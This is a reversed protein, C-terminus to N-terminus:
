ERRRLEIAREKAGSDAINEYTNDLFYEHDQYLQIFGITLLVTFVVGLWALAQYKGKASLEEETPPRTAAMARYLDTGIKLGIMSMVASVVQLLINMVLAPAGAELDANGTLAAGIGIVMGFTIIILMFVLGILVLKGLLAWWRGMVLERSRLLAELGRKGEAAYVYQSFYILLSVIIGPIIFLMFGGMVVCWSLLFVWLLGLYNKAAWSWATALPLRVDGEDLVALRLGVALLLLYVVMLIIEVVAIGLSDNFQTLSPNASILYLVVESVVLPLILLAVVTPYKKAFVWGASFLQDVTPLEVQGTSSRPLQRHPNNRTAAIVAEVMAQEYGAQSLEERIMKETHGLARRENVAAILEPNM